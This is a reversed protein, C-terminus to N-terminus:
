VARCGLSTSTPNVLGRPAPPSGKPRSSPPLDTRPPQTDGRAANSSLPISPSPDPATITAVENAQQYPAGVCIQATEHAAPLDHCRHASTRPSPSSHCTPGHRPTRHSSPAQHHLGPDSPHPAQSTARIPEPRGKLMPLLDLASSRM